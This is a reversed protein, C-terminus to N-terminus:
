LQDHEVVSRPNFFARTWELPSVRVNAAGVEVIVDEAHVHGDRAVVGEQAVSAVWVGPRPEPSGEKKWQALASSPRPPLSTVAPRSTQASGPRSALPSDPCLLAQYRATQLPNRPSPQPEEGSTSSSESSKGVHQNDASDSSLSGSGVPAIPRFSNEGRGQDAENDSIVANRGEGDHLVYVVRGEGAPPQKTGKGSRGTETVHALEIGWSEGARRSLTAKVLVHDELLAHLTLAIGCAAQNSAVNANGNMARTPCGNCCNTSNGLLSVVERDTSDLSSSRSLPAETSFNVAAEHNGEASSPQPKESEKGAGDDKLTRHRECYEHFKHRLQGAMESSTKNPRSSNAEGSRQHERFKDRLEGIKSALSDQFTKGTELHLSDISIRRKRLEEVFTVHREREKGETKRGTAVENQQGCHARESDACACQAGHEGKQKARILRRISEQLMLITGNRKELEKSLGDAAPKKANQLYRSTLMFARKCM